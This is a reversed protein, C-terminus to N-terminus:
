YLFVRALWSTGAINVTHGKQNGTKFVASAHGFNAVGSLSCSLFRACKL